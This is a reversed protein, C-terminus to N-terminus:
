VQQYYAELSTPLCAHIVFRVDKKDIGLGFAVTTCLIDVKEAGNDTEGSGGLTWQRQTTVRVHRPLKAHYPKCSLGQAQSFLIKLFSVASVM